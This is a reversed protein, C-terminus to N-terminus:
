FFYAMFIEDDLVGDICVQGKQVGEELFGYKKYLHYAGINSKFVSLWIKQLGSKKGWELTHKMIANGIGLGQVEDTLWTRFVGTHKKMELDGRIVRAIGVVKENRVIVTYMNQKKVMDKILNEEQGVTRIAEKQIYKGANVIFRAAETIQRADDIVAPRLIIKSGDKAEYNTKDITSEM